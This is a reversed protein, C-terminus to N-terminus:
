PHPHCPPSQALFRNLQRVIRSPTMARLRFVSAPIETHAIQQASYDSATAYMDIKVPSTRQAHLFDRTMWSFCAGDSPLQMGSEQDTLGLLRIERSEATLLDHMISWGSQTLVHDIGMYVFRKARCLLLIDPLAEVVATMESMLVLTCRALLSDEWASILELLGSRSHASDAVITLCTDSPLYRTAHTRLSDLALIADARDAGLCQVFASDATAHRIIQLHRRRARYDDRIAKVINPYFSASEISPYMELLADLSVSHGLRQISAPDIAHITADRELGVRLLLSDIASIDINGWFFARFGAHSALHAGDPYAKGIDPRPSFSLSSPEQLLVLDGIKLAFGRVTQLYSLVWGSVFCGLGPVILVRDVAAKVGRVNGPTLEWSSKNSLLKLFDDWARGPHRVSVSKIHEALARKTIRKMEPIPLLHTKKDADLYIVPKSDDHARWDSHIVGVVGIGNKLDDRPYTAVMVGAPWKFQDVLAIPADLLGPLSTWGIFWSLQENQDDTCLAEIYGVRAADDPRLLEQAMPVARQRLSALRALLVASVDPRSRDTDVLAAIITRLDPVSTAQPLVEQTGSVRVVYDADPILATINRAIAFAWAPVAFGPATVQEPCLAAIDARPLGTEGEWLVNGEVVLELIVPTSPAQRLMIWGTLGLEVSFADLSGCMTGKSAASWDSSIVKRPMRLPLTPATQANKTAKRSLWHYLPNNQLSGSLHTKAYAAVDFQASPNLGQRFGTVLFHAFLDTSASVSDKVLSAYYRADFEPLPSHTRLARHALYHTLAGQKAALKHTERYWPTNFVPGPWCGLFDGEELFHLAPHAASQAAAPNNELYWQPSFYLNPQQGAECGSDFWRTLLQEDSGEELPYTTRYYTADFFDSTRLKSLAAQRQRTTMRYQSARSPAIVADQASVRQSDTAGDTALQTRPRAM